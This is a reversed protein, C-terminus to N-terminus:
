MIKVLLYLIIIHIVMLTFKVKSYINSTEVTLFRIDTLEEKIKKLLSTKGVGSPGYIM